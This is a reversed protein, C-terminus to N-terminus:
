TTSASMLCSCPASCLMGCTHRALLHSCVAASSSPLFVGDQILFDTLDPPLPLVASEFTVDRFRPYWADFSCATVHAADM